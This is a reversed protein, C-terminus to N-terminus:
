CNTILRCIQLITILAAIKEAHFVNVVLRGLTYTVDSLTYEKCISYQSKKKITHMFDSLILILHRYM